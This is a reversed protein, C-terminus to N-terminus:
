KEIKGWRVYTLKRIVDAYLKKLALFQSEIEELESVLQKDYHYFNTYKGLLKGTKADRFRGNSSDRTILLRNFGGLTGWCSHLDMADIAEAIKALKKKIFPMSRAKFERGDKEARFWGEEDVYIEVGDYVTVLTKM